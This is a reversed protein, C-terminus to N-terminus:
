RGTVQDLRFIALGFGAFLAAFGSVVRILLWDSPTEPSVALLAYGSLLIVRVVVEQVRKRAAVKKKHARLIEDTDIKMFYPNLSTTVAGAALMDVRQNDTLDLTEGPRVVQKRIGIHGPRITVPMGPYPSQGDAVAQGNIWATGKGGSRFLVGSLTVTSPPKERKRAAREARHSQARGPQLLAPWPPRQVAGYCEISVNVIVADRGTQVMPDGITGRIARRVM